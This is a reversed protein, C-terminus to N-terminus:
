KRKYLYLYGLGKPPNESLAVKKDNYIVWKGEKKIHCVYHGVLTSQGMHSIFAALEYKSEGNTLNSTTASAASGPQGQAQGQPEDEDGDDDPHSFIWDVARACDNNTEKLAKRCKKEPMGMGMLNAMADADPVFSSKAASEGPQVFPDNFDADGMHEMVWNMAAEAGANKTHFVAKKCGELGFGMDVLQSVIAQDPVLAPEKPAPKDEPMEVEGAQLGTAKLVSIDIEDPMQVDVDLKYPTWDAGIDFKKLQVLLFDPFTKFRMQKKAFTRSGIAPSLFDDVREEQLFAQLCADFNIKPRVKEEEKVREGAAEIEAKKKKFAEVEDKNTAAEVPIPLPVYDEVRSKYRVQGSSGCEIRDEVEFQLCQAPSVEGHHEREMVTCLHLFFEQADQQNKGSFEPHGKGIMQKFTVPRIGRQFDDGELKREEDSLARSYEASMLGTGLKCLQLKFDNIPDMFNARRFVEAAKAVYREQFSPLTFLVQMVSALYCTNGLNDMGTYGPGHVPVLKSGSETLTAWEGIRQNMDIEIEAMSKDTKVLTEINIGFHALHEKLKPDEVMNDEAYSFVDAKGNATITGLKVALPYKTESYHEVAHNNGGSGDFFKRGCLIAGDTLNLWLNDCLDCRSCKWGRPPIKVGNDLQKLDLAHKSVEVKEGDWTGAASELEDKRVASEAKLIARAATVVTVPLAPDDLNVTVFDPMAVVSVKEEVDYKKENPNFGGPVGIALRSVEDADEAEKKPIRTRQINVFLANGTRQFYPQVFAKGLGVFKELCIFLGDPSEPSDFSFICEENFVRDHQNPIRANAGLEAWNVSM